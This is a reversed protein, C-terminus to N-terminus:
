DFLRGGKGEGGRAQGTKVSVGGRAGGVQERALGLTGKEALRAGPGGQRSAESLQERARISDGSERGAQWARHQATSEPRRKGCGRARLAVPVPGCVWVDQESWAAREASWGKEAM